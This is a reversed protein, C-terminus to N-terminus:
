SASRGRRPARSRARPRSGRRGRRPRAAREDRGRDARQGDERPGSSSSAGGPRRRAPRARRPPPSRRPPRADERADVDLRLRQGHHRREDDDDGQAPQEAAVARDGPRPAAPARPRRGSRASAIEVKRASRAAGPPSRRGRALLELLEGLLHVALRHDEEPDVAEGAVPQPPRQHPAGAAVHGASTCARPRLLDPLLPARHVEVRERAPVEVLEVVRDGRGRGVLARRRRVQVSTSRM